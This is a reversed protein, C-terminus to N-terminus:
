ERLGWLMARIPTGACAMRLKKLMSSAKTSPPRLLKTTKGHAKESSKASHPSIRTLQLM